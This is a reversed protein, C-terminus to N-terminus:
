IDILLNKNIGDVIIQKRIDVGEHTMLDDIIKSTAYIDIDELTIQVINRTKPNIATEELQDANMEGLGKFRQIDLRKVIDNIYNLIELPNEYIRIGLKNNAKKPTIKLPLISLINPGLEPLTKNIYYNNVGYVTAEKILYDNGNNFLEMTPYKDNLKYKVDEFNENKFLLVILYSYVNFDIDGKWLPTIKNKYEECILVLNSIDEVNLTVNRQLSEFTYDEYFKTALFTKFAEEDKIYNIKGGIKIGYLPPLAVYVHGNKILLSLYKYFFTLVLARIHSGDVDADAMLIIKHYRLKELYSIDDEFDKFTLGLVGLIITFAETALVKLKDIKMANTPKGKMALIAQFLGRAQKATGAASNGEVMILERESPPIRKDCDALKGPISFSDVDNMIFDKEREKKAVTRALANSFIKTLIKKTIEPNKELYDRFKDEMLKEVKVKVEVSVLKTKTQSSFMPRSCKVNIINKMGGRVDDSTIEMDKHKKYFASIYDKNKNKDIYNTIGRMLGFRFGTVHYGYDPQHINNTYAYCQEDEYENCWAMAIECEFADEPTAKCNILIPDVVTKKNNLLKKMFDLLGDPSYFTKNEDKYENTFHIKITSNLFSLEELNQEIVIDNIIPTTFIKSSPKFRVFTGRKETSEFKKLDEVKIGEKFVMTYKNKRFVSVELEESLANVVSAGVGHRGGSVKYGNDAGTSKAGAHLVTFITEVGSKNVPNGYDDKYSVMDVPMGRGNDEVEVFGDKRLAITIEDAYGGMCEDVSNSVIEIVMHNIGDGQENGNVNGIYMGPSDQVCKPFLSVVINKATYDNEPSSNSNKKLKNIENENSKESM